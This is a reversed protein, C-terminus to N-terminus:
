PRAALLPQGLLGGGLGLHVPRRRLHLGGPRAAPRRGPAALLRQQFGPVLGDPLRLAARRGRPARRPRAAPPAATRPRAPAGPAWLGRREGRCGGWWRVVWPAPLRSYGPPM